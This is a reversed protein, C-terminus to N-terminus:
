PQGLLAALDFSYYANLFKVRVSDFGFPDSNTITDLAAVPHAEDSTALNGIIGGTVEIVVGHGTWDSTAVHFVNNSTTKWQRLLADPEWFYHPANVNASTQSAGATSSVVLLDTGAKALATGTEPFLADRGTLLGVRAHPLDIFAPEAGTGLGTLTNHIQRILRPAEYPRLVVLAEPLGSSGGLELATTALLLIGNNEVFAQLAAWHAANHWDPDASNIPFATVGLGPLVVVDAQEGAAQWLQEIKAVNAPPALPHPRYAISAIRTTGDPPLGPVMQNGLDPRYYLNAIAAYAEPRRFNVSYVPNRANGIRYQPVDVTYYLITDQPAPVDDARYDLQVEGDPTIFASPADNMYYTFPFGFRTDVETGWRNATFFWVGNERARTQWIQEQGGAGWWNAPLLVIDAGKLAAVRIWDPLYVDSCIMLGLDGYITPVVDFPVIGREHFGSLGRKQRTTVLGSPGYLVVTNYVLSEPTLEAIAVAVYGHYQVALDRIGDLQPYPYTFGLGGVVEANTISFGTTALEPTVVIDAGQVFAQEVLLELAAVNATVDRLVPFSHILAVKAPVADASPAGAAVLSLLSLRLLARAVPGRAGRVLAHTEHRGASKNTM